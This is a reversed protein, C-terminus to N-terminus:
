EQDREALDKLVEKLDAITKANEIKALRAARAAEKAAKEAAIEELKADDSVIVGASVKLANLPLGDVKQCIAGGRKCEQELQFGRVLGAAVDAPRMWNDAHASLSFLLAFIM